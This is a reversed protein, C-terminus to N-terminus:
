LTNEKDNDSVVVRARKQRNKKAARLMKQAGKLFISIAGDAMGITDRYYPTEFGVASSAYVIGKAKLAETYQPYDLVPYRKHLDALVDGITLADDEDSSEDDSLATHARKRSTPLNNDIDRLTQEGAGGVHVHIPPIAQQGRGRSNREERARGRQALDDFNLCNPPNICDANAEGDHVKRAWLSVHEIGLAVHEGPKKSDPPMVYCWRNRGPHLMCSLKSKVNELEPITLASEVPKEPQKTKKGDPQVETNVIEMVVPKRRRTSKQLDIMRRFADALDQSSSLKHPADRRPEAAEKWGLIATTPDLNMQAHIRSFFDHPAIDAPLVLQTSHGSIALLGPDIQSNDDKDDDGDDESERDEEFRHQGHNTHDFMGSNLAAQMSAVAHQQNSTPPRPGAGLLYATNAYGAPPGNAGPHYNYYNYYAAMTTSTTSAPSM